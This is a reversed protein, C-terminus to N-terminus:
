PVEVYAHPKSVDPVSRPWILASLGALLPMVFGLNNVRPYVSECPAYIRVPRGYLATMTDLYFSQLERIDQETVHVPPYNMISHNNPRGYTVSWEAEKWSAFEHRLGLIHGVEHALISIQTQIYKDGFALGYVHLTRQEAAENNPLFARALTTSSGELPQDMYVVRFHAPSNRSVEEFRVTIAAYKAIAAQLNTRCLTVATKDRFSEECIVYKLVMGRRWRPVEDIWGVQVRLAVDIGPSQTSCGPKFMETKSSPSNLWRSRVVVSIVLIPLWALSRSYKRQTVFSAVLLVIVPLIVVLFTPYKQSERLSSSESHVPWRDVENVNIAVPRSLGAHHTCVECCSACGADQEIRNNDVICNLAKWEHRICEQQENENSFNPITFGTTILAM